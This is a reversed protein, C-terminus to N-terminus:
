YEKELLCVFFGDTNHIHPLFTFRGNESKYSGLTFDVARFNKHGNLFRDVVCGNEEPLLTCTSYVMRGGVKLYKASETLISYQLEPLEAVGEESRYRLDPKKRLVGLGSCPVDCIVKDATGFLSEDPTLADRAMANVSSLSLREAGGLILSIKSEHLDFSTVRGADNMLIAAAFSKGGPASCADILNEKEGPSLVAVSAACAADQVFFEGKSFGPLSTPDVSGKIRVTLSSLESVSADYGLSKLKACFDSVPIKETNVTLDTPAEERNALLLREAEDKGFVSIFRKVIWAPFSNKVSLYRAYNKDKDPLPLNDRQRDIARLVGNVFSREGPNRALKVSENVAAFSPVSNMDLLQCLGLRLINKTTLDIKDSGRGSIASIYYDYTLKNEVSTYLLSTLFAREEPSLNDARHSALSLNIYKGLSEYENLFLLALKRINM